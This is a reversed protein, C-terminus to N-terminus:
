FSDWLRLEAIIDTPKDPRSKIKNSIRNEKYGIAFFYPELPSVRDKMRTTKLTLIQHM